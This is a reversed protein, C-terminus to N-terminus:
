SITPIAIHKNRSHQVPNCSIAISSKLDYYIPIKNIHFDYNTLQTRMWIVEACCASLSVYEAKTISLMMYDQKKSAWNVMKEGLFQAGGSTSKFTDKCRAYDDDLFGMLELGSGQLIEDDFCRIFLMPDITGKFFHNQLLFKSLEDYWVRPAQKLGYLANKLKYIHSPHDADILGEPQCVYMDEKFTGHLFSTKVDMQFVIFSKHTAYVLFIRVAEMKWVDLQKFQLLEEQMSDIWAPRKYGVYQSSSSEAASTSPPAFLTVFTNGNLMANDIRTAASLQDDIYDNYMSEFPLDLERETPQQTTITSSAYTLDLRSNMQGYTMGHLRPKSSCQEFAMVSLEDFTVNMKEMIKKKMQNYVRYAYSNSSYGIFFSIDGKAGLKRINEHDNKPYCLAGFVHLFSIDSKKGNILEYPTKNFRYYIISYNQTYCTTAIADAWLFLPTYSLILMTRATDVLMQNRREIVGNKQPTGM